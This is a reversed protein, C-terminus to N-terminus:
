NVGSTPSGASASTHTHPLFSKGDITTGGSISAGGVGTIKGSVDLDGSITTQSANILVSTTTLEIIDNTISIKETGDLKRLEIGNNNYDEIANPESSFGIIAMASGINHKILHEQNQMGGNQFWASFDLDCCILLCEDGKKVPMTCAWGNGRAVHFPVDLIPPYAKDVMTGSKQRIKTRIVPQATITQNTLDFDVIIAPMAVFLSNKINEGKLHTHIESDACMQSISNLSRVM